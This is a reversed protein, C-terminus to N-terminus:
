TYIEVVQSLPMDVTRDITVYVTEDLMKIGTVVGSVTVDMEPDYARVNKGISGMAQVGLMQSMQTNMQVSQELQSLTALQLMFDEQKVPNIPDQSKLQALMLTLFADGSIGLDKLVGGTLRGTTSGLASITGM